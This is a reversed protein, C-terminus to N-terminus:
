MSEIEGTALQSEILRAYYGHRALLQQHTGQEVIAGRDVVLILDANRITSLRHAIVIQTCALQNLSQEVAKETVVDLASTAEDLLLIVPDNAIARALALRQRQGGSLANGGESVLTEYEMPMQMIDEHIAAARAAKIVHDMPMSPNSLAINQRISGSFISSGQMVVGFQSRVAQYNLTRLPIDDYFIEGETPLYLGLLLNGLTSKGSGTRGVIAVKQGPAISVSIDQLVLASNPDYRFGVKELQIHGTLREPENVEETDQEPRAEVVDTIRELHSQVLQVQQGMAVLSTLPALFATALAFLGLMTGTPLSGNLVQVTGAILLFLPSFTHLTNLVTNTLSSVYSRKVAANLQDFFLNSWRSLAREEAGSAKLTAIGTLMEAAYGQSKGQAVLERMTLERTRHGTFLLLIVQLCGIALALLAFMPSVALLILLYVLVFSGDLITSVLQNSITDRIITNSALRALIDGSSRQLFFSQPLTLLKEFFGMMMQSDVKTQLYLLVSARLLMTVLQALLLVFLGVALLTLADKLQFPIIQDIVIATLAPLALGFLQLLLSAGLIQGLAVPAMKIYNVAYSRLTVRQNATERNFQVGPELMIVIGTFSNDFEKATVRRRGIAPDVLDVYKPTWREVVLFHNFEWHIIAPLTIFRFDNEQLSIARVRLGYSRAAKVISLASLGDRGVGCHNRVESVSTKRGYYSLIMALSAAGCEVMSMQQLMPVRKRTLHLRQALSQKRVQAQGQSAPTSPASSAETSPAPKETETEATEPKQLPTVLTATMAPDQDPALYLGLAMTNRAMQHERHEALDAVETSSAQEGIDLGSLLATRRKDPLLGSTRRLTVQGEDDSSTAGSEEKQLARILDDNNSLQTSEPDFTKM